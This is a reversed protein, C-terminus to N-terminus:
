KAFIGESLVLLHQGALLGTIAQSGGYESGAGSVSKMQVSMILVFMSSCGAAEM